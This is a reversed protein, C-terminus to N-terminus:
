QTHHQYRTSTGQYRTSSYFYLAIDSSIVGDDDNGDWCGEIKLEDAGFTLVVVRAALVVNRSPTGCKAPVDVTGNACM